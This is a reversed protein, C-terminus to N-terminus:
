HCTGSGSDTFTGGAVPVFEWTYSSPSLTLKLVGFATSRVESNPRINTPLGFGGDGGTGVIIERIGNVDDRVGDPTQPAFREYIHEHGNLVLEAGAPYLVDWIAKISTRITSSSTSSYFYPHHWYVLTCLNPNAALDAKLWNNQVSGAKFPVHTSNSNLVVIHWGGLNFSYYGLGRPGLRSGFYDFSAAADSTIAYDHNGLSAYMRDKHRGWTPNFCNAYDSTSGNPYANDGVTYVTGAIGDLVSATADDSTKLCTAIDGAGVFVEPTGPAEVLGALSDSGVGADKDTISVRVSDLGLATYTHTATIPVTKDSVSGHDVVGDGWAISYVWPADNGPDRFVIGLQVTENPHTRVDAGADVTPPINAITATTTAPASSNGKSDTVTLTVTYVGEAAYTHTPTAGTDTTGDGFAWAYTLPTDGQPDFSKTGDFTVSTESRYPGGPVATPPTAGHCAGSGSDTFTSGAVPVFEWTYSGADLTLKLVGYSTADRVASNPAITGFAAHALGGTGVIIERVGYTPDPLGDPTQPAFREYNRTHAHLVLEVGANYIDTWFPKYTSKPSGSGSYFRPHHWLVVTCQKTSAALDAKLWLEQASGASVAVSSSNSNLVIIHWDGLDYSYYGKTPDGAAAGYYTFYPTAGSVLYEKDGPTPQTRAKHRGWTPDYCNTFTNASGDSTEDGAAIVTGPITDLIQATAEDNSSSCTAIDGAGVLVVPSVGTTLARPPPPLPATPEASRPADRCTGLVLTLATGVTGLLVVRHVTM